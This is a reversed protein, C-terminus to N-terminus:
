AATFQNTQYNKLNKDYMVSKSPTTHNSFEDFIYNGDSSISVNHVGLDKTILTQKGKLDVKYVLMNTGNEGTAKFYIETGTPNSGVIERAPFANNTRQDIDNSIVRAQYTVNPFPHGTRSQISAPNSVFSNVM